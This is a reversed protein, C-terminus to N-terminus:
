IKSPPALERGGDTRLAKVLREFAAEFEKNDKEWGTFDAALRSKVQGAKGNQWEGSFLYGDLDLPILALVKEGREKMLRQEKDFASNVENDVWWSTLSAKSCCLLVKDWLRIGRDVEAYIDHGPLLQHEDLWCRIGRGQLADHLRRAFSRDAHSYSIFCSYFQILPDTRLGVVDYLIDAARIPTVGAEYLKATEIEWERLGCGRLFIPPINGRSKFLTDIGVTSPDLHRVTELGKVASLDNDAFITQGLIAWNLDARSLDARSLDTDRLIAERLIAGRLIAGRLDARGLDAGSLVARGLDARNLDAGRLNARSLDAASLIAGRLDVRNLDAEYFNPKSDPNDRRWRNWAKTGQRLLELHTEDTM